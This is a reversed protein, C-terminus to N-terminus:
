AKELTEALADTLLPIDDPHIDVGTGDVTITIAEYTDGPTTDTTHEITITNHTGFPQTTTTTIM